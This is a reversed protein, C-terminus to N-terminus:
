RWTKYVSNFDQIILDFYIFRLANWNQSGKLPKRHTQGGVGGGAKLVGHYLKVFKLTFAMNQAFNLHNKISKLVNKLPVNKNRISINININLPIRIFLYLLILRTNNRPGPIIGSAYFICTILNRNWICCWYNKQAWYM